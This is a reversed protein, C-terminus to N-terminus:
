QGLELDALVGAFPAAGAAALLKDVLTMQGFRCAHATMGIVREAPTDHPFLLHLLREVQEVRSADRLARARAYKGLLRDVAEDISSTAKHAAKPLSPDLAELKPILATIGATIQELLAARLAAPDEDGLATHDRALLEQLLADRGRGVDDPVLGLRDLLGRARDDILRAHLRPVCLPVPLGFHEYLPPLQAFYSLEGPGLVVAATPLWTDQLIPRLLASTSFRAPEKHLAALLAAEEITERDRDSGVLQLSGQSPGPDLRFRAGDATDPAFFSLPAGPRVHVQVDFGADVLEQSRAALARAIADRDLVARKHIPAAAAALATGGAAPRPDLILLGHAGFLAQLLSAFADAYSHDPQYCARLLGLHEVAHPHHGLEVDLLDLADLVGPGLRRHALPVRPPLTSPPLSVRLPAEQARAVFCHDVEAVDHDETQLWFVPVCPTQTQEQLARAVAICSAAKALTYLPGGLLGVQQGTVVAPAGGNALAELHRAQAATVGRREQQARLEVLVPDPPRRAAAAAVAQSRAAPDLHTAPLLATANADLRRWAPPFPLPVWV